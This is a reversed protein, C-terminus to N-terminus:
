DDLLDNQEALNYLQEEWYRPTNFWPFHRPFAPDQWRKALWGAYHLQRLTRLAEILQLERYNFEHFDEYGSLIADLQLKTQQKDGSLLMWIDQVAPGMLCDDLDIIHPGEINWLINGAHLDGHLRINQINSHQQFIKELKDLIAEVTNCYNTKIAAPIFDHQLLFQYPEVGHTQVTLCPRHQFIRTASIAHLRGIFRGMWELQELNDLELARGGWRRFLAFRYNKFEFLTQKHENQWPAVIPIEHEVLELAFQHEELITENSWREPRYFKAIIPVSDEIGVQYVRNEYSNLSLLSASCRFGVSEVADLILDPTLDNYPTTNIMM